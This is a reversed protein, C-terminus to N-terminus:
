LRSFTADLGFNISYGESEGSTMWAELNVSLDGLNFLNIQWPSGQIEMETRSFPNTLRGGGSLGSFFQGLHGLWVPILDDDFM